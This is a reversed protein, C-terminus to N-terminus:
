GMMSLYLRHKEYTYLLFVRLKMEVTGGGPSKFRIVGESGGMQHANAHNLLSKFKALEGEPLHAAFDDRRTDNPSIGTMAAYQENVQVVTVEGSEERYIAAARIINDLLTESVLGDRIIQKFRLQGATDERKNGYGATVNLPDAILAEFREVPM